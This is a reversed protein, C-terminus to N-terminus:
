AYVCFHNEAPASPLSHSCVSGIPIITSGRSFAPYTSVPMKSLVSSPVAGCGSPRCCTKRHFAAVEKREASWLVTKGSPSPSKTALTDMTASAATYFKGIMGLWSNEKWKDTFSMHLDRHVIIVSCEECDASLLPATTQERRHTLCREFLYRAGQSM